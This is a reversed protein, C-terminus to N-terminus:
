RLGGLSFCILWDFFIDALLRHSAQGAGSLFPIACARQELAEHYAELIENKTNKASIDDTM